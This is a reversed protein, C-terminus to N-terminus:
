TGVATRGRWIADRGQGWMTEGIISKQSDPDKSMMKPNANEANPDRDHTCACLMPRELFVRPAVLLSAHPPMSAEERRVTGTNWKYRTMLTATTALSQLVPSSFLAVPLQM